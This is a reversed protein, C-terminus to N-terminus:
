ALCAALAGHGMQLALRHATLGDRDRLAKNAGLSIIQNYATTHLIGERLMHILITDGCENLKNVDAGARILTKLIKVTQTDWYEDGGGLSYRRICVNMFLTCGDADKENPNLGQQCIEEIMGVHGFSSCIMLPRILSCRCKVYQCLERLVSINSNQAAVFLPQFGECRIPVVRAGRACLMRVRNADGRRVAKVLPSRYTEPVAKGRVPENVLVFWLEDDIVTDKCLVGCARVDDGYGMYAVVRLVDILDPM